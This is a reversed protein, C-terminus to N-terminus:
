RPLSTIPPTYHQELDIAESTIAPAERGQVRPDRPGRAGQVGPDRGSRARTM